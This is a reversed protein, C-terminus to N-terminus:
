KQVKKEEKRKRGSTTYIHYTNGDGRLQPSSFYEYGKLKTFGKAEYDHYYYYDLPSDHQTEYLIVAKKSIRKLDKLIQDVTIEHEIHDLVSCTFSVDTVKNGFYQIDEEDGIQVYDRGKHHASEVAQKSIDLGYINRILNPKYSRILELNKGQGCGFEFVSRPKYKLIEDVLHHNLPRVVDDALFCNSFYDKASTTTM